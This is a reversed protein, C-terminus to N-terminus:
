LNLLWISDRLFWVPGVVLAARFLDRLLDLCEISEFWELYEFRVLIVFFETRLVISGGISVLFMRVASCLVTRFGFYGEFRRVFLDDWPDRIESDRDVFLRFFSM